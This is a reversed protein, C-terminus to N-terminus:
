LVCLEPRVLVCFFVCFCVVVVFFSCLFFTERGTSVRVTASALAAAAAVANSAVVLRPSVATRSAARTAASATATLSHQLQIILKIDHAILTRNTKTSVDFFAASICAICM